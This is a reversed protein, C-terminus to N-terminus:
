IEGRQYRWAQEVRKSYPPHDYFLLDAWRAPESEALNQDTLKALMAAFAVPNDTAALAYRDAASECHRVYANTLPMIAITFAALVIVLLPLAAVDSIGALGLRPVAWNLVVDALYFGLLFLASQLVIFRAIDGHRHHGLEHAMIVEIEEPTYNGLLTDSLVIRRTSGLGTIAANGATTKSGLNILFVDRIKTRCRGALRILRERLDSDALPELKFFLPLILVPALMTLVVSLLTVFAFALLWWTQPFTEILQYIGVVAGCGLTLTLILSKAEDNLWSRRSRLSLGYRRPLVFGRYFGLPASLIAYSLMVIVFYIAVTAPQPFDLIGSLSGSLGSLLLVILFAASVVLEAFFLRRTLRAYERAQQQRQPDLSQQLM